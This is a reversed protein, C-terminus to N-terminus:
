KKGPNRIAAAEDELTDAARKKTGLTIDAVANVAEELISKEGEIVQVAMARRKDGTGAEDVAMSQSEPSYMAYRYVLVTRLLKKADISMEPKPLKDKKKLKDFEVKSTALLNLLVCLEEPFQGDENDAHAIDYGDDVVGQEEGFKWREDLENASLRLQKKAREKILSSTIEVVDYKAYNDTVYGYRRLVDARPLPGYDNFLEQGAEVPKITKMVVKDDEYFLKANNRDADANLMDALPVMGKPLLGEEDEDEEWGDEENKSRDNSAKELDFAYAMITSGMRHCLALLEENNRNGTNAYQGIIPILQETFTTDAGDKGIKDVVASGQLHELDDDTWYMLSDFNEPLVDFYSKWQSESGRLYEYVMAVILSLWPDNIEKQAAEPLSSTEVTLISSRPISFLEEDESLNETAVIGRGAGSSRLDALQIRSSITAGNGKLWTLFRESATSFDKDEVM